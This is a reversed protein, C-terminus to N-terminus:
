GIVGICISWTGDASIYSLDDEVEERAEATLRVGKKKLLRYVEKKADDESDHETMAGLLNNSIQCVYFM